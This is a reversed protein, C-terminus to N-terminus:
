ASATVTRCENGGSRALGAGGTVVRGIIRRASDMMVICVGNTSITGVTMGTRSVTAVMGSQHRGVAVTRAGVAMRGGGTRRSPHQDILSDNGVLDM